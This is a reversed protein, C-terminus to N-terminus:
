RLDHDLSSLLESLADAYAQELVRSATAHGWLNSKTVCRDATANVVPLGGFRTIEAALKACGKWQGLEFDSRAQLLRLEIHYEGSSAITVGARVLVSSVDSQLRALWEQSNLAEARHDLITLAVTHGQLALLDFQPLPASTTPPTSRSSACGPLLGLVLLAVVTKRFLMLMGEENGGGGNPRGGTSVVGAGARPTVASHLRQLASKASM